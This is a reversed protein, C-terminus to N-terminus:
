WAQRRLIEVPRQGKGAVVEPGVCVCVCVSLVSTNLVALCPCVIDFHTAHCLVARYACCSGYPTAPVAACAVRTTPMGFSFYFYRVMTAYCKILM